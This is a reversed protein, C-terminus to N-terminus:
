HQAAIFPEADGPDKAIRVELETLERIRPLYRETLAEAIYRNRVWLLLRKDHLEPTVARLYMDCDDAPFEARLQEVISGWLRDSEATPAPRRIPQRQQAAQARRQREAVLAPHRSESAPTTAARIRSQLRELAPSAPWDRPATPRRVWHTWYALPGSIHEFTVANAHGQTAHLRELLKAKFLPILEAAEQPSLPTGFADTLITGSPFADIM